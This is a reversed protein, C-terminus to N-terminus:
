KSSRGVVNGYIDYETINGNYDVKSYGTKNNYIDYHEITKGDYSVVSKGTRSGYIDRHEYNNGHTHVTSGTRNGYVDFHESNRGDYSSRGTRNGYIDSSNFSTYSNSKDRTNNKREPIENYSNDHSYSSKHLSPYKISGILEDIEGIFIIIAVITAPAFILFNTLGSSWGFILQLIGFVIFDILAIGIFSLIPGLIFM